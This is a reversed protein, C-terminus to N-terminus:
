FRGGCVGVVVIIVVVIVIEVIMCVVCWNLAWIGVFGVGRVGGM